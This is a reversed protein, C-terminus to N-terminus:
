NEGQKIEQLNQIESFWPHLLIEEASIRQSPEFVIMKALLDKCEKSVNEPHNWEFALIKQLCDFPVKSTLMAYLVVGLSWIDASMGSYNDFLLIEPAASSPSGCFTGQLKGSEIIASLGFDILKVQGNTQILINTPKIDRHVIHISHCYQLAVTLQKFLDKSKTESIGEEILEKLPRSGHMHEMFLYLRENTDIVEIFRIVSPHHLKSLIEIEQMANTAEQESMLRKNIIKVALKEKTELHTAKKVKGYNGVAILKGISYKGIIQLEPALDTEEM